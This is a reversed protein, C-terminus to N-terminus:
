AWGRFVVGLSKVENDRACREFKAVIENHTREDKGILVALLTPRSEPM